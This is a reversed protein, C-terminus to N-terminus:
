KYVKYILNITAMALIIFAIYGAIASFLYFSNNLTTDIFVHPRQSEGYCYNSWM